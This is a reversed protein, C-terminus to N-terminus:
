PLTLPPAMQAWRTLVRVDGCRARRPNGSSSEAVSACRTTIARVVAAAPVGWTRACVVMAGAGEGDFRAPFVTAVRAPCAQRAFAKAAADDRSFSGDAVSHALLPPGHMEYTFDSPSDDGEGRYPVNTVLDLRGDGDADRAEIPEIGAAREYPTVAGDHVTYVEGHQSSAGENVDTNVAIILEPSGDGDFDALSAHALHPASYSTWREPHTVRSVRGDRGVHVVARQGEVAAMDNENSTDRFTMGTLVVAWAGDATPLCRGFSAREDRGLDSTVGAMSARHEALLGECVDVSADATPTADARATESAADTVATPQPAPPPTSPTPARSSTCALLLMSSILSRTTM